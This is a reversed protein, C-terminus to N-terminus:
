LFAESGLLLDTDDEMAFAFDIVSTGQVMEVSVPAAIQEDLTAGMVVGLALCAALAMGPRLLGMTGFLRAAWGNQSTTPATTTTTAQAASAMSAADALVRAHLAESPAPADWLDLTADLARAEDLMAQAAASEALLARAAARDEAPWQAIDGGYAMAYTEFDDLEM